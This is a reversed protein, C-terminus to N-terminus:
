ARWAHALIILSHACMVRQFSREKTFAIHSEVYTNSATRFVALLGPFKLSRVGGSSSKNFISVFIETSLLIVWGCSESFSPHSVLHWTCVSPLSEMFFFLIEECFNCAPLFKISSFKRRVRRRPHPTSHHLVYPYIAGFGLYLRVTRCAWSSM